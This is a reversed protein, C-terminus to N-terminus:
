LAGDDLVNRIVVRHVRSCKMVDDGVTQAAKSEFFSDTHLLHTLSRHVAAQIGGAKQDTM